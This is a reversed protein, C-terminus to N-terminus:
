AVYSREVGVFIRPSQGGIKQAKDPGDFSRRAAATEPPAPTRFARSPIVAGIRWEPWGIGVVLDLCQSRPHAKGM